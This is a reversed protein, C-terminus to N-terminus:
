YPCQNLASVLTAILEKVRRTLQGDRFHVQYSLDMMARLVAPSQSFCKLIAPFQKREPNHAFWHGYLQALEGTADSEEIWDIRPM